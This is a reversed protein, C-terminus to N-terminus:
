SVRTTLGKACSNSMRSTDVVDLAPMGRAKLNRALQVARHHTNRGREDNGWDNTLLAASPNTAMEAPPTIKRYEANEPCSPQRAQREWSASRM